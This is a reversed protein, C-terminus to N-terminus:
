KIVNDEGCLFGISFQTVFQYKKKWQCEQRGEVTYPPLFLVVKKTNHFRHYENPNEKRREIIWCGEYNKNWNRWWIGMWNQDGMTLRCRVLKMAGVIAECSVWWWWWSCSWWWWWSPCSWWWWWWVWSYNGKM